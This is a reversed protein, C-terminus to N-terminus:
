CAYHGIKKYTYRDTQRDTQRHRHKESNVRNSSHRAPPICYGGESGTVDDSGTQM